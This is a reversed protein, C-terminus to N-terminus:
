TSSVYISTNLYPHSPWEGYSRCGMYHQQPPATTGLFAGWVGPMRPRLFAPSSPSCIRM